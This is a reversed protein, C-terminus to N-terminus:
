EKTLMKLIMDKKPLHDNINVNTREIKIARNTFTYFPGFFSEKLIVGPVESLIESFGGELYNEYIKPDINLDTTIFCEYELATTDGDEYFYSTVLFKQCKYGIIDEFINTKEIKINLDPDNALYYYLTDDRQNQMFISSIDREYWRRQVIQQNCYFESIYGHENMFSVMSDGRTSCLYELPLREDVDSYEVQYTIVGEFSNDDDASFTTEFVLLM